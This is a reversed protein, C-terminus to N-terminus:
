NVVNAFAQSWIPGGITSVLEVLQEETTTVSDESMAKEWNMANTPDRELAGESIISMM